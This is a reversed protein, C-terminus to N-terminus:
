PFLRAPEAGSVYFAECCCDSCSGAVRCFLRVNLASATGELLPGQCAKSSCCCCCSRNCDDCDSRHRVVVAAFLICTHACATCTPSVHLTLLCGHLFVPADADITSRYCWGSGGTGEFAHLCADVCCGHGWFFSLIAASGPLWASGVVLDTSM